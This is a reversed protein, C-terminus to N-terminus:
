KENLIDRAYESYGNNEFEEIIYKLILNSEQSNGTERIILAELFLTEPNEKQNSIKEINELAVSYNGLNYYVFGAWYYFDNWDQFEELITDSNELYIIQKAAEFYEEGLILDSFAVRKTNNKEHSLSELEISKPAIFYNTKLTYINSPSDKKSIKTSSDLVFNNLDVERQIIKKASPEKISVGLSWYNKQVCLSVGILLLLSFFNNM